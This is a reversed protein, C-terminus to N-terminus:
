ESQLGNTLLRDIGNKATVETGPALNASALGKICFDICVETTRRSKFHRGESFVLTYGIMMMKETGQQAFINSNAELVSTEVGMETMLKSYSRSCTTMERWIIKLNGGIGSRQNNGIERSSSGQLLRLLLM